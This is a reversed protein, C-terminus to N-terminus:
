LDKEKPLKCLGQIEANHLIRHCHICMWTVGRGKQRLGNRPFKHHKSMENMERSKGCIKCKM